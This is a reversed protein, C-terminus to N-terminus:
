PGLPRVWTRRLARAPSGYSATRLAAAVGSDGVGARHPVVADAAHLRTASWRRDGLLLHKDRRREECLPDTTANRSCELRELPKPTRPPGEAQKARPQAISDAPPPRYPAEFSITHSHPMQGRPYAPSVTPSNLSMSHSVLTSSAVRQKPLLHEVVSSTGLATESVIVPCSRIRNLGDRLYLVGSGPPHNPAQPPIISNSLHCWIPITGGGGEVYRKERRGKGQAQGSHLRLARRVPDGWRSAIARAPPM